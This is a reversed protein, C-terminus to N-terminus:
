ITHEKQNETLIVVPSRINAVVSYKRIDICAIKEM